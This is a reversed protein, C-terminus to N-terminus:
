EKAKEPPATFSLFGPKPEYINGADKESKLIKEVEERELGVKEAIEFIESIEVRGAPDKSALARMAKIIFDVKAERSQLMIPIERRKAPSASEISVYTGVDIELTFPRGCIPCTVQVRHKM